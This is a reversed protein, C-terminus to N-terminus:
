RRSWPASRQILFVVEVQASDGGFGRAVVPLALPAAQFFKGARGFVFGKQVVFEGVIGVFFQVACLVSNM